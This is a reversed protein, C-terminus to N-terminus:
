YRISTKVNNERENFLKNSSNMELTTDDLISWNENYKNELMSITELLEGYVENTIDLSKEIKRKSKTQNEFEIKKQYYKFVREFEDKELDIMLNKNLINDLYKIQSDKGSNARDFIEEYYNYLDEFDEEYLSNKKKILINLQELYENFLKNFLAASKKVKNEQSYVIINM